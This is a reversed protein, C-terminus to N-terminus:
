HRIIGEAWSPWGSVVSWQGSVVLTTDHRFLPQYLFGPRELEALQLGLLPTLARGAPPSYGGRLEGRGGASPPLHSLPEDVSHEAALCLLVVARVPVQLANM